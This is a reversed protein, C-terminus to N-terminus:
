AASVSRFPVHLRQQLVHTSIQLALLCCCCAPATPAVGAESTGEGGTMLRAQTYKPLDAPAALMLDFHRQLLLGTVPAGPVLRRQAQPGSPRQPTPPFLYKGM